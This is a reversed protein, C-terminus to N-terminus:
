SINKNRFQKEINEYEIVLTFYLQTLYRELELKFVLLM